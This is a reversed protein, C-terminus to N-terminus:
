GQWPRPWVRRPGRGAKEPQEAVGRFCRCHRPHGPHHSFGDVRGNTNRGSVQEGAFRFLPPSLTHTHTHTRTHTHTHALAYARTLSHTHTHTRTDTIHTHTHTHTYRNHTPPSLAYRLAAFPTRILLRQNCRLREQTACQSTKVCVTRFVRYRICPSPTRMCLRTDTTGNRFLPRFCRTHLVVIRQKDRTCCVPCTLVVYPHSPSTSLHSRQSTAIRRCAMACGTLRQRQKSRLSGPRSQITTM